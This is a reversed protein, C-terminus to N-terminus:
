DADAANRIRDLTRIVELTEALPMTASETLGAGLCRGVEDAEFHLGHGAYPRSVVRGDRGTARRAVARAIPWIGTRKLAEKLPGDSADDLSEATRGPPAPILRARMAQIFPADVVLRGQEGVIELTNALVAAHSAAIVSIPAENNEGHRLVAAFDAEAGGNRRRIEASVASPPGILNNAAAVGYVGLDLLVGGGQSPDSFWAVTEPAVPFGLSAHLGIIRGIGGDRVIHRAEVMIPLFRTWMAEMCFVRRARALEVVAEAEAADRAFPKECLVAKGARLAASCHEAHLGNPTAVYVADIATDSLMEAADAFVRAGRFRAALAEARQRRRAAVAAVIGTRSFRLDAAFRAAVYGAGLIGWRVRFSM